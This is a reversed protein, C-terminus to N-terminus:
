RPVIRYVVVHPLEGSESLDCLAYGNIFPGLRVGLEISDETMRGDPLIATLQRGTRDSGRYRAYRDILIGEPGAWLVRQLLPLENRLGEIAEYHLQSM